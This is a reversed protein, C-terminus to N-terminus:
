VSKRRYFGALAAFAFVLGIMQSPEPSSEVTVNDVFATGPSGGNQELKVVLSGFTAPDYPTFAFAVHTWTNLAPSGLQHTGNNGSSWLWEEDNCCSAQHDTGIYTDDSGNTWLFDFSIYLQGHYDPDSDFTVVKSFLDGGSGLSGFSLVNASPNNLDIQPNSVILGSSNAAWNGNALGSGSEFSELFLLNGFLAPAALLLLLCFRM